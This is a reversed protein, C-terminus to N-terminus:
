PVLCDAVVQQFVGRTSVLVGDDDRRDLRRLKWCRGHELSEVFSYRTGAKAHTEVPDSGDARLAWIAKVHGKRGYSPKV